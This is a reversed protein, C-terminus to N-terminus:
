LLLWLGEFSFMWCKVVYFKKIKRRKHTMKTRSSGSRSESYPDPDVPRISDPDLGSGSGFCQHWYVQQGRPPQNGVGGASQSGVDSAAMRRLWLWEEATVHPNERIKIYPLLSPSTNSVVVSM